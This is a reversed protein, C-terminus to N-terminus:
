AAALSATPGSERLPAFRRELVAFGGFLILSYFLDGVVANGFFPLAAVYCAVLGASTSPYLNGGAWVGFNTLVFFVVSSCLVAGAIPVFQRRTRLWLGLAVILAFSLYVVPMGRYFGLVLDSLFLACLPVAFALRRDQFYAGGFLAIAAIPTMNPPHPLLRLLAAVLVMSMLAIMRPKIM